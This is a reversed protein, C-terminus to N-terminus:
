LGDRQYVSLVCPPSMQWTSEQLQVSAVSQIHIKIIKNLGYSAIAQRSLRNGAMHWRICWKNDWAKITHWCRVLCKISQYVICTFALACHLPLTGSSSVNLILHGFLCLRASSLSRCIRLPSTPSTDCGVFTSNPYNVLRM